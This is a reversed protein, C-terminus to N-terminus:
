TSDPGALFNDIYASVFRDDILMKELEANENYPMLSNARWLWRSRLKEPLFDALAQVFCGPAECLHLTRLSYKNFSEYPKTLDPYTELLEGFKIYAQSVTSRLTSFEDMLETNLGKLPHLTMTHKSWATSGFEKCKKSVREKCRELEMQEANLLVDLNDIDIQRYNRNKLVFYKNLTHDAIRAYEEVFNIM